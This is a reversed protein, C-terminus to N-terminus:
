EDGNGKQQREHGPANARQRAAEKVLDMALSGITRFNDGTVPFKPTENM